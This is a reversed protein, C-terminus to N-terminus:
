QLGEMRALERQDAVAVAKRQALLRARCRLTLVLAAALGPAARLPALVACLRDAAARRRSGARVPVVVASQELDGAAPQDRGTSSLHRHPVDGAGCPWRRGGGGLRESRDAEAGAARGPHLRCARWDPRAAAGT